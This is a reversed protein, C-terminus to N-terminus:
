LLLFLIFVFLLHLHNLVIRKKKVSGTEDSSSEKERERMRIRFSVYWYLTCKKNSMNIFKGAFGNFQPTVRQVSSQHQEHHHHHRYMDTITPEVYVYTTQEGDGVNYTMLQLNPDREETNSSYLHMNGNNNNQRMSSSPSTDDDNHPQLITEGTMVDIIADETIEGDYDDGGDDGDDYDDNDDEARVYGGLCIESPYGIFCSCSLILLVVMTLLWFGSGIRDSTRLVLMSRQRQEQHQQRQHYLRNM